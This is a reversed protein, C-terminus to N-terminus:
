LYRRRAVMLLGLSVRRKMPAFNIFDATRAVPFSPLSRDPIIRTMTGFPPSQAIALCQGPLAQRAIRRANARTFLRSPAPPPFGLFISLLDAWVYERAGAYIIGRSLHAMLGRPRPVRMEKERKSPFRLQCAVQSLSPPMELTFLVMLVITQSLTKLSIPEIRSAIVLSVNILPFFLCRCGGESMKAYRTGLCIELNIEAMFRPSNM